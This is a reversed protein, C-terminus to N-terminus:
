RKDADDIGARWHLVTRARRLCPRQAPGLRRHELDGAREALAQAKSQELGGSGAGGARGMTIRGGERPGEIVPSARGKKDDIRPFDGASQAAILGVPRDRKPQMDMGAPVIPGHARGENGGPDVHDADRGAM